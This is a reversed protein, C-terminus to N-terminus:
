GENPVSDYTDQMVEEADLYIQLREYIPLPVQTRKGRPVQYARGNIAVYVSKSENSRARPLIVEKMVTWPDTNMEMTEEVEVTAETKKTAM